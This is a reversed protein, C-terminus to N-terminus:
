SVTNKEEERAMVGKNKHRQQKWQQQPNEEKYNWMEMTM